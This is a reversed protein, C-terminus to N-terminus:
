HADGLEVVRETLYAHLPFSALVTDLTARSDVAFVQWVSSTDSALFLNRRVGETDLEAGRAQEAPVLALIEATPAAAFHSEVMFQM